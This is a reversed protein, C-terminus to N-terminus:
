KVRLSGFLPWDWAFDGDPGTDVRLVLTRAFGAPLDLRRSVIGRHSPNDRANFHEHFVVSETGDGNLVVWTIGVGDSHGGRDYSGARMTQLLEISAAEDPLRFKVESYPTFQYMTGGEVQFEALPAYLRWSFPQLEFDALHAVPREASREFELAANADPGFSEVVSFHSPPLGTAAILERANELTPNWIYRHHSPPIGGTFGNVTRQKIRLAASWADLNLWTDPQNAYGYAFVLIPRTGAKHWAAIMADSRQRAVALETVPQRTGLGELAFACGLGIAIVRRWGAPHWLSTLVLAASLAITAHVLAAVRGSGRFARLVDIKDALVVWPAFGGETWRTFFLVTLAAGGALALMWVGAARRRNKWGLVLAAVLAIWPLFGVFWSHEVQDHHGGPWGLPYIAHAPSTTFWSKWTPTLYDIEAMTRAVGTHRAKIYAVATLAALGCGVVAIATPAIWRRHSSRGAITHLQPPHFRRAAFWIAVVAVTIIAGFFALYPGAAFQWAFWGSASLLQTHHRNECWRVLESWGLLLPFFPLMQMHTGTLWVVITSSTAAFVMPGRLCAAIKLAAVLRLAALANLTAVAVFWFQWSRDISLTLSRFLAYIPLTGAHTDSFGLTNRAPFFQGPSNWDYVGRLTQFGHELVLQNFRGDGLDGPYARGGSLWIGQTVHFIAALLWATTWM